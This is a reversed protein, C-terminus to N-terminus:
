HLRQTFIQHEMQEVESAYYMRSAPTLATATLFKKFAEDAISLKGKYERLVNRESEDSMFTVREASGAAQNLVRRDADDSSEFKRKSSHLGVVFRDGLALRKIGAYVIFVCASQCSATFRAGGVQPKEDTLLTDAVCTNLQNTKIFGAIQAATEHNGGVSNLCLTNVEPHLKMLTIIQRLFPKYSGEKVDGQFNFSDICVSLDQTCARGYALDVDDNAHVYRYLGKAPELIQDKLKPMFLLAPLVFFVISAGYITICGVSVLSRFAWKNTM